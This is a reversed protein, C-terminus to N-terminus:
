NHRNDFFFAFKSSRSVSRIVKLLCLPSLCVIGSVPTKFVVLTPHKVFLRFGSFCLHFSFHGSDWVVKVNGCKMFCFFVSLGRYLVGWGFIPGTFFVFGSCSCTFNSLQVCVCLLSKACLWCHFRTLWSVKTRRINRWNILKWAVVLHVFWTCRKKKRVVSELVSIGTSGTLYPLNLVTFLLTLLATLNYLM